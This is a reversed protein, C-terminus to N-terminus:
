QKAYSIQLAAKDTLKFGQLGALAIGAQIDDSFEVFAVNRFDLLRVEKYGPYQRFLMDLAGDTCEAPLNEVYLVASPTEVSGGSTAFTPMTATPQQVVAAGQDKTQELKPVKKKLKFTGDARASAESNSRAYQIRMPRSLFQFGQLQRLASTACSIDRFCVFAHGRKEDAYSFKIDIVEGYSVFIEFLCKRLDNRHVKDTLNAVFLTQRPVNEAPIQM